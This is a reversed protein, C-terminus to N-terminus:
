RPVKTDDGEYLAYTTGKAVKREMKIKVRRRM